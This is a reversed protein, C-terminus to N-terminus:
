LRKFGKMRVWTEKVIGCVGTRALNAKSVKVLRVESLVEM